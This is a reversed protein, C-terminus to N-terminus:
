NHLSTHKLCDGYIYIKKSVSIIFYLCMKDRVTETYFKVQMNYM